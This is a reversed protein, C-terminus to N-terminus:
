INYSSYNLHCTLLESDDPSSNATMQYGCTKEHTRSRTRPIHWEENPETVPSQVAVNTQPRFVCM